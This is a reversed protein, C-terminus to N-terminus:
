EEGEGEIESLLEVEPMNKDRPEIYLFFTLGTPSNEDEVMVIRFSLGDYVSQGHMPNDKDYVRANDRRDIVRAMNFRMQQTKADANTNFPLRIGRPDELSKDLIEYIDRYAGRNQPITM